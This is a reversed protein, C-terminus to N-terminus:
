YFDLDINLVNNQAMKQIGVKLVCKSVPRPLCISPIWGGLVRKHVYKRSKNGNSNEHVNFKM